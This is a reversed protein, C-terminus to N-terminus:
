TELDLVYIEQWDSGSRSISYAMYKGDKSWSTGALAVTGDDSLTNPDLLVRPEGGLSDMEYLVYQNQLGDNRYFYWKGHHKVPTGIKEYNLLETLRKALKDRMPLSNLYAQTVANEAAVWAETEASTDNELWRYPDAVETGFYVDVTDCTKTEPYTVQAVRHCASSMVGVAVLAM